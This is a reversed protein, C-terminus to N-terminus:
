FISHAPNEIDYEWMETQQYAEELETYRPHEADFTHGYTTGFTSTHTFVILGFELDLSLMIPSSSGTKYNDMMMESQYFACAAYCKTIFSAADDGVPDNITVMPSLTNNEDKIYELRYDTFSHDLLDSLKDLITNSGYEYSFVESKKDSESTMEDIPIEALNDPNSKDYQWLDSWQYSMELLDNRAEYSTFVHECGMTYGRDQYAIIQGDPFSLNILGQLSSNEECSTLVTLTDQIITQLKEIIEYADDTGMDSVTIVLSAITAEPTAYALKIEYSVVSEDLIEAVDDAIPIKGPNYSSEYWGESTLTLPTGDALTPTNSNECGYFVLLSILLSLLIKFKEM